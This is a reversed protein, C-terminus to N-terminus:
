KVDTQVSIALLWQGGRKVWVRAARYPPRSNDPAAHDATMVASDGYVALRMSQVEGVAVAANDQKQREIAAIRGSKTVAEQGTRYVVFEDAVHKGWEVADHDVVAREIAQFATIVEQEAPSRVRYPFAVCPNKCEHPQAAAAPDPAGAPSGSTAAAIGVDQSVLARWASKQKAWIDIFFVEGNNASRRHGTVAAVLGYSRAKVDGIASAAFDKLGAVFNRRPYVKGDADIFAFQLALLRRAAAKDGLRMAEGLAADVALVAAEDGAVPQAKPQARPVSFAAILVVGALAGLWARQMVPRWVASLTASGGRQM